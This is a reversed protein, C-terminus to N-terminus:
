NKPFQHVSMKKPEPQDPCAQFSNNLFRYPRDIVTIRHDVTTSRLDANESWDCDLM